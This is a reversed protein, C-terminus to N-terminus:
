RELEPPLCTWGRCTSRRGRGARTGDPGGDMGLQERQHAGMAGGEDEDVVAAEGLADGAREVIKRSFSQDEGVMAAHSRRLALFDFLPQLAAADLAQDGGGRQLEADVHSGDVEDDLDFRRGRDGASHLADAAGSVLDSATLLPMMKGLNRASRSAQAAAVPAM